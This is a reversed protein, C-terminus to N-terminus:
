PRRSSATTMLRRRHIRRRCHKHQVLALAGHQGTADLALTPLLRNAAAQYADRHKPYAVLAEAYALILREHQDFERRYLAAGASPM